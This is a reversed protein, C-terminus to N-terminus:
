VTRTIDHAKDLPDFRSPGGGVESLTIGSDDPACPGLSVSLADFLRTLDFGATRSM